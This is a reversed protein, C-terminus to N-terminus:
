SLPLSLRAVVGGESRNSVQIRGGHLEAIEKVLSLGLGSSKKGTDPRQLSYFREFLKDLAYKPIGAGQDLVKIVAHHDDKHVQVEVVAGTKSFAIANNLLNSIAQQMLFADGKVEYNDTITAEISITRAAAMLQVDEIAMRTVAGLEILETKQLTMRNELEVLQLMREVLQQARGSEQRINALFRQRDNSAMDEQLLEVAGQIAALPSKIEHTLTQVYHEVYAKGDLAVRMEELASGMLGIENKGLQPLTVRQGNKVAQVYDTLKQLPQSVWRYLVFVVLLMGLAAIWGAIAVKHKADKLFRDLNRTPKGVSLVGKLQGDILIPSAVYIVSRNPYRPDEESSRAGYEGNLTRYVDNWRSYDKGEDRGENSDFIVIGQNDTVYVRMDVFYKKLQYIRTELNRQYIERFLKRWTPTPFPRRAIDQAVIAALVNATDVLPEELSELYRQRLDDQVWDVLFYFGCATITAFLLFIRTRIKM